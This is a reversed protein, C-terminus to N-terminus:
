RPRAGDLYIAGLFNAIEQVSRERTPDFWFITWNLLNLLALTLYRAPIEKRILGKDQAETITERFMAAHRDREQRVESQRDASLKGFEALMTAHMDRDTLAAELHADIMAQLRSELPTAAMAKEVASQIHALSVTCISFLLDEKGRIHHYLSAKQLGLAESLERTSTANYGQTRFLKAAAELLQDRTVQGARGRNPTTVESNSALTTDDNM